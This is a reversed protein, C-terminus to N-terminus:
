NKCPSSNEVLIRWPYIKKQPIKAKQTQVDEITINFSCQICRKYYGDIDRDLVLNGGCRPCVTLKQIKSSLKALAEKMQFEYWPLPERPKVQM